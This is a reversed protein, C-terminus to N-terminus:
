FKETNFHFLKQAINFASETNLTNEETESVLTNETPKATETKVSQSISYIWAKM